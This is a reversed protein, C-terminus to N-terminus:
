LKVLLEAISWPLQLTNGQISQSLKPCTKNLTAVNEALPESYGSLEIVEWRKLPLFGSVAKWLYLFLLSPPSCWESIDPRDSLSHKSSHRLCGLKWHLDASYLSLYLVQRNVLYLWFSPILIM